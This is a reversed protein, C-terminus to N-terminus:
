CICIDFMTIECIKKFMTAKDHLKLLNKKISEKNINTILCLIQQDSIIPISAKQWIGKLDQLKLCKLYEECISRKWLCEEKICFLHKMLDAKTPLANKDFEKDTHSEVM